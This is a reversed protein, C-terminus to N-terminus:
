FLQSVLSTYFINKAAREIVTRHTEKDGVVPGLLPEDDAALESVQLPPDISTQQKIESARQLLEELKATVARAPDATPIAM